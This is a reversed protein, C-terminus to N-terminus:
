SFLMLLCFFLVSRSWFAALFVGIRRILLTLLNWAGRWTRGHVFIGGSVVQVCGAHSRSGEVALNLWWGTAVVHVGENGLDITCLFLLIGAEAQSPLGFWAM